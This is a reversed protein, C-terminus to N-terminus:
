PCSPASGISPPGMAQSSATGNASTASVTGSPTTSGSFKVSGCTGYVGPGGTQGLNVVAGGPSLTVKVTAGNYPTGNLSVDVGLWIKEKDIVPGNKDWYFTRRTITLVEPTATAPQFVPATKAVGSQAFSDRLRMVFSSRLQRQRGIFSPSLPFSLKYDFATSVRIYCLIDSSNTCLTYTPAVGDDTPDGNQNVDYIMTVQIYDNVIYNGTAPNKQCIAATCNAVSQDPNVDPIGDNNLDLLNVFGIGGRSGSEHRVRDRIDVMRLTRAGSGGILWRSGYTGGEQSANHLGQVAFFMLGLDVAAALLFFILTAALAFEVLAQGKTKPHRQM